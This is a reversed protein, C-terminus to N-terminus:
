RFYHIHDRAWEDFARAPRGTIEEVTRTYLSEGLREERAARILEVIAGALEEDLGSKIMGAVAAEDPVPQFRLAKGLAAGLAAVQDAPSLTRGGTILHTKGLHAEPEVLTRVSVAAIDRPDIPSAPGGQPAFVVGQSKVMGAWRLANSAFGVPRLMTWGLGSARLLEEADLHWQGIRTRPEIHITGSSVLAVQRLTGGRAAEIIARTVNALARAEATLLLGTVGALAPALTEPRTFDGVAIEIGRVGELKRADRTLARVPRGEEVLLRVAESGINGTAATVLIM